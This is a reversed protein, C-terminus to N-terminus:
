TDRAIGKHCSIADGLELDVKDVTIGSSIASLVKQELM